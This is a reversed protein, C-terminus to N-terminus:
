KTQNWFSEKTHLIFTKNILIEDNVNKQTNLAISMHAIIIGDQSLNADKNIAKEDALIQAQLYYYADKVFRPIYSSTTINLSVWIGLASILFVLSLLIYARKM